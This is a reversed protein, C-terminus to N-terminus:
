ALVGARRSMNASQPAAGAGNDAGSFSRRRDQSTNNEAGSVSRRRGQSAFGEDAIVASVAGQFSRRRGQVQAAGETVSRRRGQTAAQAAQAQQFIKPAADDDLTFSGRRALRRGGGKDNASDDSAISPRRGYWDTQADDDFSFSGRRPGNFGSEIFGGAPVDVDPLPIDLALNRYKRSWSRLQLLEFGELMRELHEKGGMIWKKMNEKNEKSERAEFLDPPLWGYLKVDKSSTIVAYIPLTSFASPPKDGYALNLQLNVSKLQVPMRDGLIAYHTAKTYKTEMGFKESKEVYVRKSTGTIEKDFPIWGLKTKFFDEIYEESTISSYRKGGPLVPNAKYGKDETWSGVQLLFHGKGQELQLAEVICRRELTGDAFFAVECLGSKVEAELEAQADETMLVRGTIIAQSLRKMTMELKNGSVKADFDADFGLLELLGETHTRM